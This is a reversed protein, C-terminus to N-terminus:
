FAAVVLAGAVAMIMGIGQLRTLHEKYFIYALLTVFLPLSAVFISGISLLQFQVVYGFTANGLGDLIGAAAGIILLMPVLSNKLRPVVHNKMALAFAILVVVLSTLRAILLTAGVQQSFLIAYSAIVWYGAWSVNALLAPLLKRNLELKNNTIILLVGVFIIIGGLAQISSITEHLVLISFLLLIAPQALGIGSTNSVQETELSKYYLIYGIALLIGSVLSLLIAYPSMAFNSILFFILIPFIGVFLVLVAGRLNGAIIAIRRELTLSIAWAAVTIAIAVVGLDAM